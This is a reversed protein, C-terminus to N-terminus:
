AAGNLTRAVCAHPGRLALLWTAYEACNMRVIAGLQPTIMQVCFGVIESVLGTQNVQVSVSFAPIGAMRALTATVPAAKPKGNSEQTEILALPTRCYCCYECADVDIMCLKAAALRGVYRTISSPRHWGSYLLSRRGTREENSM